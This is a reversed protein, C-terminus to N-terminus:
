LVASMIGPDRTRTGGRSNEWPEHGSNTVPREADPADAAASSSTGVSTGLDTWKERDIASAAREWRHREVTTPVFRGYVKAVMVVDRHGLQRAVLELPMGARVMRVAWHHRADHLRYGTLGLARCRARHVDGAVWRHLGRFLREGPTLTKLHREVHPWAWDAVLAIRDRTWAKTGRARVEHTRADIDTEVLTLIASIEIDAGYALAFIARYPLSAGDVLRVVDPLELFATRPPNAKPAVVDRLPNTSLVGMEVLYKAFSRVAALYRRKTPGSAPTPPLDHQRRSGKEARQRKRVLSKRAALWKAIAPGTFSSRWYRKGEPMLTRIHALYHDRSDPGVRDVLWAQWDPILTTLDVDTLQARLGDLDNNSWADFVRGLPLSGDVVRELLDWERRGNPGLELLMREIAKATPRHATGTSRKVRGHPTPVAVFYADRRHRKYVM